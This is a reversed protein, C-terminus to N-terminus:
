NNKFKSCHEAVVFNRHLRTEYTSKDNTVAYKQRILNEAVAFLIPLSIEHLEKLIM